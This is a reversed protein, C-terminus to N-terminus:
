LCTSTDFKPTFKPRACNLIQEANCAPRGSPRTPPSVLYRIAFKAWTAFKQFFESIQLFISDLTTQFLKRKYFYEGRLVKYRMKLFGAKPPIEKPWAGGMAVRMDTARTTSHRRYGVVQMDAGPWFGPYKACARVRM